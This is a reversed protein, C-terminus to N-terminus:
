MCFAGLWVKLITLESATAFVLCGPSDRFALSLTCGVKDALGPIPLLSAASNTLAPYAVTINGTEVPPM